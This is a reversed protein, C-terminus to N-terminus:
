FRPTNSTVVVDVTGSLDEVRIQVAIHGASRARLMTTAQGLRTTVIPPDIAATRAVADSLRFHVPVDEAPTGDAKTVQVTLALSQGALTQSAGPLRLHYASPRTPGLVQPQCGGVLSVICTLIAAARRLSPTYPPVRHARCRVRRM